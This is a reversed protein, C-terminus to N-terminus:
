LAMRRFSLAKTSSSLEKCLPELSLSRGLAGLSHVGFTTRTPPPVGPRDGVQLSSIAVFVGCPKLVRALESVVEERERSGKLQELVRTVVVADFSHDPAPIAHVRGEISEVPGFREDGPIVGMERGEREARKAESGAGEAAKPGRVLATISCRPFTLRLDAMLTEEASTAELIGLSRQPKGRLYEGLLFLGTARMECALQESKGSGRQKPRSRTYLGTRAGEMDQMVSEAAEAAVRPLNGPHEALPALLAGGVTLVLRHRDSAGRFSKMSAGVRELYARANSPQRWRRWFAVSPKERFHKGDEEGPALDVVTSWSETASM